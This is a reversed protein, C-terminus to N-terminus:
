VAKAKAKLKRKYKSTEVVGIYFVQKGIEVLVADNKRLTKLDPKVENVCYEIMDAINDSTTKTGSVM